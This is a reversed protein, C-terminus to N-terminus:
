IDYNPYYYRRLWLKYVPDVFDITRNGQDIIEKDILAKRIRAVNASTGLQYRAIVEASSLKTEKNLLAKLFRVQTNSLSETLNQFLLSLQLILSELSQDLIQPTMKEHCRLWCLQSLQQVYYPHNEVSLAVQRALEPDISKGTAHFRKLIFKGWDDTSIKELFMIDGFKYFPMSPSTFVHMLMNRKSGYLCYLVDQQRQWKARLQKQFGVPDKYNGINQFEDICVIIKWGKSVAIQQPLDLIEDPEKALENWNLGLSFEQFQDPSFTIRPTWRKFFNGSFQLVEQVKTTTGKLVREALVRYFDEESRVNFLDVLVLKIKENENVIEKGAKEVLSSKGWRRPSIVVTNVGALFNSKLRITETERDTFEDGSALKGFIFPVEMLFHKACLYSVFNYSVFINSVFNYAPSVNANRM